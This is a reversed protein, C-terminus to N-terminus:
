NRPRRAGLLSRLGAFPTAGAETAGALRGACREHRPAYPISLLVEDEILDHVTMERGGVVKEPGDAEEAAAAGMEAESPYLLLSSQARLEYYMAELCRQCVLQLTGRVTLHLAPRGQEEPVGLLEYHLAGSDAYLADRLRPFDNVPWDGSLKSGARAFEFGDIVPRHPM